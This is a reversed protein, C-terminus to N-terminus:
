VKIYDLNPKRRNWLEYPSAKIKKSPVRNHVHCATLLEEASLIMANVMDVLTKNKRKLWVM